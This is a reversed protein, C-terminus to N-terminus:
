LQIYIKWSINAITHSAFVFSCDVCYYHIMYDIWEFLTLNLLMYCRKRCEFYLFRWAASKIWRQCLQCVITGGTSRLVTNWTHYMKRILTNFVSFLITGTTYQTQFSNIGSGQCTSLIFKVLVNAVKTNFSDERIKAFSLIHFCPNWIILMFSLLFISCCSTNMFNCDINKVQSCVRCM